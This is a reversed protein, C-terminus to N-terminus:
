RQRSLLSSSLTSRIIKLSTHLSGTVTFSDEWSKQDHITQDNNAPNLSREEKKKKCSVRKNKNEREDDWRRTWMMDCWVYKRHRSHPGLLLLGMWNVVLFYFLVSQVAFILMWFESKESEITRVRVCCRMERVRCWIPRWFMVHQCLFIRAATFLSLLSFCRRTHSESKHTTSILSQQSTTSLEFLTQAKGRM